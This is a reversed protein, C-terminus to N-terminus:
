DEEDMAMEDESGHAGDAADGEAGEEGEDGEGGEEGEDDEDADEELDLLVVRRGKTVLSAMGRAHSLALHSPEARRFTRARM